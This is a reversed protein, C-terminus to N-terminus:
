LEELGLESQRCHNIKDIINSDGFYNSVIDPRPVNREQPRNAVDRFKAIYPKGDKTTGANETSIFVTTNKSSYKYGIAFLTVGNPAQCKMVLKSGSPWDKM